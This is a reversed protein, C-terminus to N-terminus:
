LGSPYMPLWSIFSINPTASAVAFFSLLLTSSACISCFLGRKTGCLTSASSANSTQPMSMCFSSRLQFFCCCCPIESVWTVYIDISIHINAIHKTSTHMPNRTRNRLYMCCDSMIALCRLCIRYRKVPLLKSFFFAWQPIVRLHAFM